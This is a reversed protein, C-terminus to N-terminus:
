SRQHSNQISFCEDFGFVGVIKMFDSLYLQVHSIIRDSHRSHREIKNGNEIENPADRPPLSHM